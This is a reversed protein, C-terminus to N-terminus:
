QITIQTSVLAGDLLLFADEDVSYDGNDVITDAHLVFVIEEGSIVAKELGLLTKSQHIPLTSSEEHRIRQHGVKEGLGNDAKSDYRYAVVWAPVNSIVKKIQLTNGMVTSVAQNVAAVYLTTSYNVVFSAAATASQTIISDINPEYEGVIGDDRRLEAYLIEGHKVDRDLSVVINEHAESSLSHMGIVKDAKRALLSDQEYIVIWVDTTLTASAITIENLEIVEQDNVTIFNDPDGTVGGGCAILYLPALTVIIIKSFTKFKSILM